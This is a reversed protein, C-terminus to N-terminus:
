AATLGWVGLGRNVLTHTHTHTGSTRRWPQTLTTLQRGCRTPIRSHCRTHSVELCPACLKRTNRSGAKYRSLPSGVNVCVRFRIPYAKVRGPEPLTSVMNVDFYVAETSGQPALPRHPSPPGPGGALLVEPYLLEVSGCDAGSLDAAAEVVRVVEEPVEWPVIVRQPVECGKAMCAGRFEKGHSNNLFTTGVACQVRGGLHWVRYVTGGQPEHYEQLVGTGDEFFAGGQEIQNAAFSQLEEPSDFRQIGAGFGGANPKLLLPYRLRPQSSATGFCQLEAWSQILVGAPVRGGAKTLVHHHM